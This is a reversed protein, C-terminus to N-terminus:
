AAAQPNQSGQMKLLAADTEQQVLSSVDKGCLNCSCLHDPDVFKKLLEVDFHEKIVQHYPEARNRRVSLRLVEDGAQKLQRRLNDVTYSSQHSLLKTESLALSAQLDAIEAQLSM